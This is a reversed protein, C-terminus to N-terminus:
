QEKIIQTVSKVEKINEEFIQQGRNLKMSVFKLAQQVEVLAQEPTQNDSIPQGRQWILVGGAVVLLMVVVAVRLITKRFISRHANGKGIRALVKQDFDDTLRVQREREQLAFLKKFQQLHEPLGSEHGLYCRLEEEEELTTECRWFKDLLDEIRKYDM